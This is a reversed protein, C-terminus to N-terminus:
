AVYCIKEYSKFHVFSRISGPKDSHLVGLVAPYTFSGIRGGLAGGIELAPKMDPLFMAVILPIINAVLLAVARRWGKLDIANNKKFLLVSWSCIVAPHAAPYSFTLCLFFGVRVAIMLKDDDPYTNLMNGEIADGSQLYSAVAPIVCIILSILLAWFCERNRVKVDPDSDCIVPCVFTPLAFALTHVTISAFIHMDIKFWTGSPDFGHDKISWGMEYVVAAVYFTILSMTVTSVYALFTLSKPISLAIVKRTSGWGPLAHGHVRGTM